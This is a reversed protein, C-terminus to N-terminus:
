FLVSCKKEVNAPDVDPLKDWFKERRSAASCFAPGPAQHLPCFKYRGTEETGPIVLEGTSYLLTGYQKSEETGEGSNLCRIYDEFKRASMTMGNPSKEKVDSLARRLTRRCRQSMSVGHGDSYGLWMRIDKETVESFPKGAKKSFGHSIAELCSTTQCLSPLKCETCSRSICNRRKFMKKESNTDLVWSNEKKTFQLFFPCGGDIFTTKGDQKTVCLNCCYILCHGGCHFSVTDHRLLLSMCGITSNLEETDMKEKLFNKCTQEVIDDLSKGEIGCSCM